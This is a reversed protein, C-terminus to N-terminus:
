YGREKQHTCQRSVSFRSDVRGSQREAIIGRCHGSTDLQLQGFVTCSVLKLLYRVCAVNSTAYTDFAPTMDECLHPVHFM